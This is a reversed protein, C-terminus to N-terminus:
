TAPVAQAPARISFCWGSRHLWCTTDKEHADCRLSKVPAGRDHSLAKALLEGVEPDCAGSFAIFYTGFHLHAHFNDASARTLLAM